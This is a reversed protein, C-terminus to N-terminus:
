SVRIRPDVISYLIDTILNMVVVATALIVVTAQLVPWDRNFVANIGQYGVGPINFLDEVVFAGSVLYALSPGIVSLLPLMANRFAHIYIVSREAVGKSRATRVFDQGMVELMVTRTIRAFYGTNTLALIVVPAIKYSISGEWGSVPLYPLNHAVLIDMLVQYFPIFVFAPISYLFLMSGMLTTDIWKGRKLAAAVGAPIGILIALLFASLGLEVSVGISPLIIDNVSQGPFRYSLGFNGHLLNWLFNLYQIEWPKDLGYQVQLNHYAIATYHQGLLAKIPDQGPALYGMAYTIFTVGIIVFVLGLVRRVLFKLM